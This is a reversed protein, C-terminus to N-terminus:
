EINQVQERIKEIQAKLEVVNRTIEINNAKSGITNAERNFEQILFDMKRGVASDATLFERMQSIHSHLRVTEEDIAARDAFIAAEQLIRSEDISASELVESMKKYLREIYRQSNQKADTEVAALQEEILVLRASIDDTLKRGEAGRMENFKVLAESLVSKCDAWLQTEDIEQRQVSFVDPFRSISALTVVSDLSLEDAIRRLAADYGRAVEINPQIAVDSVDRNIVTMSVEVKGREVASSIVDKIQQEMYSFARPLKITPEFYRHNVSKIEVTIERGNITECGRGYGTMSFIM